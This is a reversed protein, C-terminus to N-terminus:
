NKLDSVANIQQFFAVMVESAARVPLQRVDVNCVKNLLDIFKGVAAMGDNKYEQELAAVKEMDDWTLADIDIEVAVPARRKITIIASGEPAAQATEAEQSVAGNTHPIADLIM